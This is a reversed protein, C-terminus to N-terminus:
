QSLVLISDRSVKAHDIDDLVDQLEFPKNNDLKAVVHESEELSTRLSEADEYFKKSLPVVKAIKGNREKTKEALNEYQGKVKTLKENMADYDNEIDKSKEVKHVLREM